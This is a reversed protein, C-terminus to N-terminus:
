RSDDVYTSGIIRHNNLVSIRSGEADRSSVSSPEIIRDILKNMYNAFDTQSFNLFEVTQERINVVSTYSQGLGPCKAASM